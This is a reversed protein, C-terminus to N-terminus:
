RTIFRDITVSKIFKHYQERVTTGYKRGVPLKSGDVMIVEGVGMKKIYQMNVLYSKHIRIMTTGQLQEEYEKLSDYGIFGNRKAYVSVYHREAQIYVIESLELDKKGDLLTFTAIKNQTNERIAINLCKEVGAYTIPKDLFALTKVEIADLKLEQHCSVFAIRWVVDSERLREMVDLGSTEGMEIDLFLLLMRDGQYALVEEGFSFDVYRWEQQRAEFYHQCFAKITERHATEDDCIGITIM